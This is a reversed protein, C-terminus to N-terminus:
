ACPLKPKSAVLSMVFSVVILLAFVTVTTLATKGFYTGTYKALTSNANAKSTVMPAVYNFFISFMAAFALLLLLAMLDM